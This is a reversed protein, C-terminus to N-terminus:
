MSGRGNAYLDLMWGRRQEHIVSKRVLLVWYTLSPGCRECGPETLVPAGWPHTSDGKSNEGYVLSQMEPSGETSFM